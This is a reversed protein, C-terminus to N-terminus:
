PVLNTDSLQDAKLRVQCFPGVRRLYARCGRRQSLKRDMGMKKFELEPVVSVSAHAERKALHLYIYSADLEEM